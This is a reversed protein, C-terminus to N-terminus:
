TITERLTRTFCFFIHAHTRWFQKHRWQKKEEVAFETLLSVNSFETKKEKGYLLTLHARLSFFVHAHTADFGNIVDSFLIPQLIKNSILLLRTVPMELCIVSSQPQMFWSCYNSLTYFVFVLEQQHTSLKKITVIEISKNTLHKSKKPRFTFTLTLPSLFVTSLTWGLTSLVIVNCM